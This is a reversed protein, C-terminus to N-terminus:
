VPMSHLSLHLQIEKSASKPNEQKQEQKQEQEDDFPGDTIIDYLVGYEPHWIFWLEMEAGCIPCVLPDKRFSDIIRQRWTIHKSFFSFLQQKARRLLELAKRFAPRIRRAYLGYRKVMQYGKKPIHMVLRGIFQLVPLKESKTEGTEHDEYSFTVTEGDYSQIRSEAIAPRAIYRGVYKAAKRANDMKNEANVYFGNPYKSFLEDILESVDKVDKTEPFHKKLKTLLYYQWQKRLRSYPIFNVDVWNADDNLGGETMLVHVHPNFGLDRGFTHVVTIIGSTANHISEMVVKAAIDSLVKLLERNWYIKTRLHEPITFVLHRHSVNLIQTSMKDVWDDVYAKGCSTCFRSKCTFFVIKEPHERCNTCMYIAYGMEKTGCRLMKSVAEIVSAQMDEPIKDKYRDLFEEWHDQFIRKIIKIRNYVYRYSTSMFKHYCSFCTM